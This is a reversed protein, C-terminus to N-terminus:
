AHWGNYPSPLNPFLQGATLGLESCLWRIVQAQKRSWMLRMLAPRCRLFVSIDPPLKKPQTM